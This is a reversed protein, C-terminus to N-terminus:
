QVKKRSKRKSTEVPVEIHVITGTGDKTPTQKVNKYVDIAQAGFTQKIWQKFKNFTYM